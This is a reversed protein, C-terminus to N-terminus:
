RNDEDLALVVLGLLFGWGLGFPKVKMTGMSPPNSAPQYVLTRWTPTSRSPQSSSSSAIHEVNNLNQALSNSKLKLEVDHKLVVLAATFSAVHVVGGLGVCAFFRTMMRRSRERDRDAARNMLITKLNDQM